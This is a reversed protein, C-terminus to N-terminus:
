VLVLESCIIAAAEEDAYAEKVGIHIISRALFDVQFRCRHIQAVVAGYVTVDSLHVVRHIQTVALVVFLNPSDKHRHSRRVISDTASAVTALEIVSFSISPFDVNQQPFQAIKIPKM